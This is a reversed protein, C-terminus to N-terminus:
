VAVYTNSSVEGGLPASDAGRAEGHRCHSGDRNFRANPIREAKLLELLGAGLEARDENPGDREADATSVAVDDVRLVALWRRAMAAQDDAV